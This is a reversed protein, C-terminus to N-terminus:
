MLLKKLLEDGCEQLYSDSIKDMVDNEAHYFPMLGEFSGTFFKIKDIFIEMNKIPFGLRVIASDSTIELPSYGFSDLIFINKVEELIKSYEKQFVRYGHGWYITEDYSIEENGAIVFLSKELIGQEEAIINLSIAVGSANDVAGKEISDYHSFIIYEPNNLNGVLINASKHKVKEVNMFGDIEKADIVRQVDKKNIALAPAMYHNSRSIFDCLPNFNINADYFNKQSSILSSLITNKDTIKGSKFGCPLSDIKHEDAKLGWDLYKPIQTVYEQVCFKINQETLFTEIIKQAKKEGELQREGILTLDEIIKKTYKMM